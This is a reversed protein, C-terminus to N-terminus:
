DVDHYCRLRVVKRNPGAGAAPRTLIVRVRARVSRNPRAQGQPRAAARPAEAPVALGYRVAAFGYRALAPIGLLQLGEPLQQSPVSKGLPPLGTLSVVAWAAVAVGLAAKIWTQSRPGPAWTGLDLASAAAFGSALLPGVPNAVVFGKNSGPLLIGPTALAHLGLFAAGTTM